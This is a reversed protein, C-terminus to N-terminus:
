KSTDKMTSTLSEWLENRKYEIIIHCYIRHPQSVRQSKERFNPWNHQTKLAARWRFSGQWLVLLLLRWLAEDDKYPAKMRSTCLWRSLKLLLNWATESTAAHGGTAADKGLDITHRFDLFLLWKRDCVLIPFLLPYELTTPEPEYTQFYLEEHKRSGHYKKKNKKQM